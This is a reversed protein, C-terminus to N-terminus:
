SGHLRQSPSLIKRQRLRKQKQRRDWLQTPTLHPSNCLFGCLNNHRRGGKVRNNLRPVSIEIDLVYCLVFYWRKELNGLVQCNGVERLASVKGMSQVAAVQRITGLPLEHEIKIQAKQVKGSLRANHNGRKMTHQGNEVQMKTPPCKKWISMLKHKVNRKKAHQRQLHYIWEKPPFHM